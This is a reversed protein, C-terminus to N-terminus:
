IDAHLWLPINIVYVQVLAQGPRRDAYRYIKESGIEYIMKFCLTFFLVHLPSAEQLSQADEYSSGSLFFSSLHVDRKINKEKLTFKHTFHQITYWM